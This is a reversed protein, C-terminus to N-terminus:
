MKRKVEIQKEKREFDKSIKLKEETVLRAKEIAFEEDAKQRIEAAKEDAERQIFNVMHGLQQSVEEENM